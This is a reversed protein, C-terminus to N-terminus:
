TTANNVAIPITENATQCRCWEAILTRRPPSASTEWCHTTRKRSCRIPAVGIPKGEFVILRVFSRIPLDRANFIHCHVDITPLLPPIALAGAPSAPPEKTVTCGLTSCVLSGASVRLFWRRSPDDPAESSSCIKLMRQEVTM